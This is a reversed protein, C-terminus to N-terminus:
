INVAPLSSFPKAGIRELESTIRQVWTQPLTPDLTYQLRKARNPKISSLTTLLQQVKPAPDETGGATFIMWREQDFRLRSVSDIDCRFCRYGHAETANALVDRISRDGLDVFTVSSGASTPDDGAVDTARKVSKKHMLWGSFVLFALGLGQGDIWIWRYADPLFEGFHIEKLIQGVNGGGKHAIFPCSIAIIGMTIALFMGINAHWRRNLTKFNEAM